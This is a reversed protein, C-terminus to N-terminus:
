WGVMQWFENVHGQVIPGFCHWVNCLSNNQVDITSPERDLIIINDTANLGRIRRNFRVAKSRYHQNCSVLTCVILLADPFAARMQRVWELTDRVVDLMRHAAYFDHAGTALVFINPVISDTILHEAAATPQTAFTKFSFTVRRKLEWNIYERTCGMGKDGDDEGQVCGGKEHKMYSGFRPDELTGNLREVLAATFMRMSSDGIIYVWDPKQNNNRQLSETMGTINSFMLSTDILPIHDRPVNFVLGGFNRTTLLFAVVWIGVVKLLGVRSVASPAM